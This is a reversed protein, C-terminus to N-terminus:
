SNNKESSGLHRLFLQKDSIIFMQIQCHRTQTTRFRFWAWQAFSVYLTVTLILLPLVNGLNPILGFIWSLYSSPNASIQPLFFLADWLQPHKTLDWARVLPSHTLQLCTWFCLTLGDAPTSTRAFYWLEPVSVSNPCTSKRYWSFTSLPDVGWWGDSHKVPHHQILCSLCHGVRSPPVVLVPTRRCLYM